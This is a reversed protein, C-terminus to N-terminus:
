GYCTHPQVLRDIVKGATKPLLLSQNYGLQCEQKRHQPVRVLLNAELDEHRLSQALKQGLTQVM